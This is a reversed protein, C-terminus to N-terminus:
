RIAGSALIIGAVAGAVLGIITLIYFFRVMRRLDRTNDAIEQLRKLATYRVLREEETELLQPAPTVRSYSDEWPEYVVGEPLPRGAKQLKDFEEMEAGTCREKGGVLANRLTEPNLEASM